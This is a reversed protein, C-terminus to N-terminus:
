IKKLNKYHIVVPRHVGLLTGKWKAKKILFLVPENLISVNTM